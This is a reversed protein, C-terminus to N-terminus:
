SGLLIVSGLHANHSANDTHLKIQVDYATGNTLGSVDITNTVWSKSQGTANNTSNQGGVDVTVHSKGAGDLNWVYGYWTVTSVTARKIWKSRLMTAASTADSNFYMYETTVGDSNSNTGIYLGDDTGQQDVSGAWVFIVGGVASWTPNAGSGASTLVHGSTGQSGLGDAADASNNVILEGTATTTGIQVGDLTGNNIDADQIVVQTSSGLIANDISGSNIDIGTVVGTTVTGLSAITQGAFTVNNSFTSSGSFTSTGNFTINQAITALDLKTDSIAAASNVDANVITNDKYEEVGASLYNFLQDENSTVQSAVITTGSTYSYQRSPVAGFVYCPSSVLCFILLGILKRM